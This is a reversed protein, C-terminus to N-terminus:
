KIIKLNSIENENSISLFYVGKSLSEPLEINQITNGAPYSIKDVLNAIKRGFSDFLDVSLVEPNNSYFDLNIRQNIPNPYVSFSRINSTLLPNSLEIKSDFRALAFNSSIQNGSIGGIIIKGDPQVVISNAQNNEDLFDTTVIGNVGFTPDFLGNELLRILKIDAGCCGGTSEYETLLIKGDVQIQVAELFQNPLQTLIIGNSGFNTDIQGNPFLSTMMLSYNQAKYEGAVLLKGDPFANLFLSQENADPIGIIVSGNNGFNPDNSGDSNLKLIAFDYNYGSNPDFAPSTKGSLIIKDSNLTLTNGFNWVQLPLSVTGNVGFTLDLTGDLNYKALAFNSYSFEDSTSGLALIKDNKFIALATLKNFADSIHTIVRGNTGFNTDLTGDSNHRILVFESRTNDFNILNGGEIIKGDLQLIMTTMVMTEPFDVVVKGSVGFSLDLSGNEKYRALGFTSGGNRSITGGALIKGDEQMLVKQINSNSSEFPTIVIGDVDFTLDLTGFQAFISNFSFLFLVGLFYKSNKM